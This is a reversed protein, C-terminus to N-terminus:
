DETQHASIAAIAYRRAEEQAARIDAYTEGLKASKIQLLRVADAVMEPYRKITDIRSIETQIREIEERLKKAQQFLTDTTALASDAAKLHQQVTYGPRKRPTSM